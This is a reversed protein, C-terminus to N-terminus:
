QKNIVLKKTFSHNDSTVKVMYVGNAVDDLQIDKVLAGNSTESNSQYVLKGVLSYISITANASNLGKLSVNFSGNSPNPVVSYAAESASSAKIGTVVSPDVVNITVISMDQSSRYINYTNCYTDTAGCSVTVSLCISYNGAASYTHSTFLTSSFSGDGWSWVANSVNLPSAPYANWFQPTGTPSLSFTADAICTGSPITIVQTATDGCIITNSLTNNAYLNVTYTGAAYSHSPNASTSTGGDGFDWFYSLNNGGITNSTFQVLGNNNNYTFNTSVNCWSNVNVTIMLSDVCPSSPVSNDTAILWVNYSGNSPYTHAHSAAATTSTFGDGYKWIYNTNATTGTSTNSFNVQGNSGLGGPYASFQASLNCGPNTVNTVAFTMNAIASCTMASNIFMVQVTYVGNAPYTYSSGPFTTSGTANNSGYWWMFNGPNVSSGPVAATFYMTGNSGPTVYLTPQCTSQAMGAKASILVCLVILTKFFNTINKM